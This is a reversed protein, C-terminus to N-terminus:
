QNECFVRGRDQRDRQLPLRARYPATHGITIETDSAGPDYRKQALAGGGALMLALGLVIVRPLNRFYCGMKAEAGTQNGIARNRGTRSKVRHPPECRWM